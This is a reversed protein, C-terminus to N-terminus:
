IRIWWFRKKGHLLGEASLFTEKELLRCHFLNFITKLARVLSTYFLGRLNLATTACILQCFTAGWEGKRRAPEMIMLKLDMMMEGHALNWHRTSMLASFHMEEKEGRRCCGSERNSNQEMLSAENELICRTKYLLRFAESQFHLNKLRGNWRRVAGVVSLSLHGIKIICSAGCVRARLNIQM